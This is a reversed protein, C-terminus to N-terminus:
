NNEVDYKTRSYHLDVFPLISYSIDWLSDILKEIFEGMEFKKFIGIMEIINVPCLGNSHNMFLHILIEEESDGILMKLIKSKYLKSHIQQMMEDVANARREVLDKNPAKEIANSYM